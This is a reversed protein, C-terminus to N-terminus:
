ALSAVREEFDQVLADWEDEVEAKLDEWTGDPEDSLAELKERVADRRNELVALQSALQGKLRENPSDMLRSRVSDIQLSLDRVRQEMGAQYAERGM